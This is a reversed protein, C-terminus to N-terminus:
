RQLSESMERELLIFQATLFRVALVVRVFVCVCNCNCDCNCNCEWSPGEVLEDRVM